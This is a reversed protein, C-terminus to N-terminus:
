TAAPRVPGHPGPRRPGLRRHGRRGQAPDGHPQQRGARRDPEAPGRDASRARGQRPGDGRRAHRPQRGHGARVARPLGAARDGPGVGRQDRNIEINVDAHEEATMRAAMGFRSAIPLAWRMRHFLARIRARGEDGTLGIPFADVCVLGAARTPHRDAWHWSLIAGYSWGVLLAQEVDRADLVASLDGLGAEFSHDASRQSRGRARADYTIHRCDDGLHAIVRRWHSLDAYAGNLYVVPPGFGGSDRVYLATDGVPVTGSWAPREPGEARQARDVARVLRDQERDVYGGRGYNRVLAEVFEVPDDGVLDRIPTAEAAAREFLEAVDDFVAMAHDGDVPGFHMLYRELADVVLRYREPLRRIRAKYARWRRKPGIMRGFLGAPEPVSMSMM